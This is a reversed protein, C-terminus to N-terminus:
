RDAERAVHQARNFVEDLGAEDTDYYGRIRGQGDVLVLKGTHAIDMLGGAVVPEPDGLPVKFGDMALRRIAQPEGTLLTWRAPRVGLEEGYTRLREPTDYEPDVSISVLRIGSISREDYAEQLRKVSRMLLPCISPCRTFFFSVIYAQGRLDDSGYPRGAVDVLAFAPVQGQIPPPEPIHRLLPRIATLAVVGVLFGWLWPSRLLRGSM